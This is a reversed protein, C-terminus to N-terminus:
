LEECASKAGSREVTGWDPTGFSVAISWKDDRKRLLIEYGKKNDRITAVFGHKLRKAEAVKWDSGETVGTTGGSTTRSVFKGGPCFIHDVHAGDGRTGVYRGNRIRETAKRKLRKGSAQAGIAASSAVPGNERPFAPQAWPVLAAVLAVAACRALPRAM